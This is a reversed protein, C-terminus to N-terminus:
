REYICCCNRGSKKARYLARDAKKIFNKKTVDEEFLFCAVGFSMTVPMYRGDFEPQLAEVDMRLREAVQFAQRLNTEPLIISFEEGGYRAASDCDRLRRTLCAAVSTLVQDGALHGWTDNVNKFLDIDGFLLSLPYNYRLSRNIEKELTEQFAHYNMLGTLTDHNARQNLAKIKQQQEMVESLLDGSLLVLADRANEIMSLYDKEDNLRIEFLPLIETAQTQISLALEEMDLNELLGYRQAYRDLIGLRLPSGSSFFFDAFLSAMHTIHTSLTTKDDTGKLDQPNHHFRVPISFIEPFKWQKLLLHGFMTHDFGLIKNEADQWSCDSTAMEFYILEYQDPMCQSLALIGIDHLLGLFFADEAFSLSLKQAMLRCTIASIISRKWFKEYNFGSSKNKKYVKVLTFSLALNQVANMGLLKVAHNVSTIPRSFNFFSSNAMKLIEASLAMDNSIIDGLETLSLDKKNMSELIEIVIGPLSPLKHVNCILEEIDKSPSLPNQM